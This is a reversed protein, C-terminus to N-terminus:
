TFLRATPEGFLVYESWVIDHYGWKKFSAQRARRLAEGITNRFLVLRYFDSVLMAAGLDSVPWLTGIFCKVGAQLFSNALSTTGWQLQAASLCSNAFVLFPPSEPMVAQIDSSFCPGDRFSFFSKERNDAYETSHGSYHIVGYESKRILDLFGKKTIEVGVRNIRAQPFVRLQSLIYNTERESEVLDGTPNGVILFRANLMRPLTEAVSMPVKRGCSFKLHLFTRGDFALEWPIPASKEDLDLVFSCSEPLAAFASKIEDPLIRQHIHTGYGRLYAGSVLDKGRFQLPVEANIWKEMAERLNIVAELKKIRRTEADDTNVNRAFSRKMFLIATVADDSVESFSELQVSRGKLNFAFGSDERRIKLLFDQGQPEIM